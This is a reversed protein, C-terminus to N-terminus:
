LEYTFAEEPIVSIRLGSNFNITTRNIEKASKGYNMKMVEYASASNSNFEDSYEINLDPWLPANEYDTHLLSLERGAASFEHFIESSKPKPIRPGLINIDVRFNEIYDKSHMIGYVYFFIDDKTIQEGAIKQFITLSQDTINHKRKVEDNSFM